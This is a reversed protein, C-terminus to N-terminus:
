RKSHNYARVIRNVVLDDDSPSSCLKVHSKGFEDCLAKESQKVEQFDWTGNDFMWMGHERVILFYYQPFTVPKRANISNM